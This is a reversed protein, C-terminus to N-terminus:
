DKICRVYFYFDASNKSVIKSYVKVSSCYMYFAKAKGNDLDSSWWYSKFFRNKIDPPIIGEWENRSEYNDVHTVYKAIFQQKEPFFVINGETGEFQIPNEKLLFGNKIIDIDDEKLGLRSKLGLLFLPHYNNKVFGGALATFGSSNSENPKILGLRFTEGIMKSAAKKGGLYERLEMWESETPIHWGTPCAKQADEFSYLRGYKQLMEKISWPFCSSDTEYCLNEAMWTQTGIKVTKYIKGDRNDTFYGFEQGFTNFTLILLIQLMLLRNIEM